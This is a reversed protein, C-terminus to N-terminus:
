RAGVLNGRRGDSERRSRPGHVRGQGHGLRCGCRVKWANRQRRRGGTAPRLSGGVFRKRSLGVAVALPHSGARGPSGPSCTTNQLKPSASAPISGFSSAGGCETAREAREVLFAKVESVVDTYSALSMM